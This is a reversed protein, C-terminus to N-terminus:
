VVIIDQNKKKDFCITFLGIPLCPNTKSNFYIFILNGCRKFM